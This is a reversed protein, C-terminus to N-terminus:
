RVTIRASMSHHGIGCYEHCFLWYEGEEDFEVDQVESVQGPIVMVNANTDRIRIGHIVDVSTALIRVNPNPSLNSVDVIPTNGILDLVNAHVASIGAMSGFAADGPAITM